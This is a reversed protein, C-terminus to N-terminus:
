WPVPPRDQSRFSGIEGDWGCTVLRLPQTSGLESLIWVGGVSWRKNPDLHTWDSLSFSSFRPPVASFFSFLFNSPNKKAFWCESPTETKAAGQRVLFHSCCVPDSLWMVQLQHQPWPPDTLRKDDKSQGRLRSCLTRAAARIAGVDRTAADIPFDSSQRTKHGLLCIKPTVANTM